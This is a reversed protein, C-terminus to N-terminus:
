LIVRFLLASGAATANSASWAARARPYSVTSTSVAPRSCVSSRSNCSSLLTTRTIPRWCGPAGCSDRSTNSAVTPCFATCCACRNAAVTGSVPSITVLSSPVARPPLTTASRRATGTGMRKRPVPSASSSRATNSAGCYARRNTRSHRELQGCRDLVQFAHPGLAGFGEGPEAHARDAIEEVVRWVAVEIGGSDSGEGAGLHPALHAAHAAHHAGADEGRAPPQAHEARHQQVLTAQEFAAPRALRKELARDLHPLQQEDGARHAVVMAALEHRALEDDERVLVFRAGVAAEDERDVRRGFAQRVLLDAQEHVLMEVGQEREDVIRVRRRQTLAEAHGREGRRQGRHMTGLRDGGGLSPAAAKGEVLEEVLLQNLCPRAEEGLARPRPDAELQLPLERRPELLMEGELEGGVLSSRDPLDRLVHRRRLAHVPQQHPVDPRALRHHRQERHQQRGLVAKLRRHHRGGLQEGLLM